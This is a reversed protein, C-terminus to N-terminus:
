LYFFLLVIVREMVNAEEERGQRYRKKVSRRLQAIM